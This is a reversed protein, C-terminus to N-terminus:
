HEPNSDANPALVIEEAPKEPLLLSLGVGGGLTLAVVALSAETPLSYGLYDAVMKVGIFGLVLAVAPQLYRLTGIADAVFSYLSRLGLIAFINSTYVIFPDKTVGFVAPISDVAFVVDSLEIVALVLVLPTFKKVGDVLTVFKDGDYTSTVPIFKRVIKVLVNDSLDGDEDDDNAFLLKYSSIILIAAFLLLVGEFQQLTAAGLAIMIARFVMAGVIGYFLVRGQYAEPVQFYDFVLVFVFLNDVSLSQELLYGAFYEAAKASGMKVFIGVGFMVAAGVWLLVATVNPPAAPKGVEPELPVDVQAEMPAAIVANNNNNPAPPSAPPNIIVTESPATATAASSSLATPSEPRTSDRTMTNAFSSHETLNDSVALGWRQARSPRQKPLQPMPLRRATSSPKAPRCRQLCPLLHSRPTKHAYVPRFQAAPSSTMSSVRACLSSAM